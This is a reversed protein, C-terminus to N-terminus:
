GKAKLRTFLHSYPAFEHQAEARFGAPPIAARGTEGARDAPEASGTPSKSGAPTASDVRNVGDAADDPRQGSDEHHAGSRADPGGHPAASHGPSTGGPGSPNRTGEASGQLAAYRDEILEENLYPDDALPFPHDSPGRSTPLESEWDGEWGVEVLGEEDRIPPKSPILPSAGPGASSRSAYAAAPDRLPDHHVPVCPTPAGTAPAVSPERHALPPHVRDRDRSPPPLGPRLHALRFLKAPNGRADRHLEELARELAAPPQEAYGLLERAEDFDLPMLHLHLSLRSAIAAHRRRALARVLETQGLLVLAAFGGPRGLHNAFSLIEDWVGGKARHAEDVILLWRRGDHAEDELVAQVAERAAGFRKGVSVGLAHGISRQFELADMAAALDIFATRWQDPLLAALQRAQWTKGAGPEGTLLVPGAQGNEVAARLRALARARSSVALRRDDGSPQGIASAWADRDQGM